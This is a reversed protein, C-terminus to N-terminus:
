YQLPESLSYRWNDKWNVKSKLFDKAVKKCKRSVLRWNLLTELGCREIILGLVDNCVRMIKFSSNM